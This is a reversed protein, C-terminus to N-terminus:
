EAQRFYYVMARREGGELWSYASSKPWFKGEADVGLIELSATLRADDPAALRVQCKTTRCEIREVRAQLELMKASIALAQFKRERPVSWGPDVTEREFVAQEQALFEERSKPKSDHAPAPPNQHHSPEPIEAAGLAATVPREAAPPASESRATSPFRPGVEPTAQEATNSVTAERSPSLWGTQLWYLLIALAVAAALAKRVTGM